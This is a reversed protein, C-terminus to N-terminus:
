RYRTSFRKILIQIEFGLKFHNNVITSVKIGFLMMTNESLLELVHALPLYAIYCEDPKPNLMFMICKMCAVLNRHTLVVGQLLLLENFSHCPIHNIINGIYCTTIFQIVNLKVTTIVKPTGTSGSTYMVIATDDPTPSATNADGSADVPTSSLINAGQLSCIYM